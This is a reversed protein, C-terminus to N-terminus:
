HEDDYEKMVTPRVMQRGIHGIWSEKETTNDAVLFFVRGATDVRFANERGCDEDASKVTSCDRLRLVETPTGYSGPRKYSVLYQPTLVFWRRRWEKMVRSQKTLWGEKVVDSPLIVVNPASSGSPVMSTVSTAISSLFNM